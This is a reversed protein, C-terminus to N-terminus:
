AGQMPSGDTANSALLAAGSPRDALSDTAASLARALEGGNGAELFLGGTMKALCEVTAADESNLDFAIVHATFNVGSGELENALECPDGGCTEIGDTVLIVTAPRDKSKLERAAM